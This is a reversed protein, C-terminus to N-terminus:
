QRCDVMSAISGDSRTCLRARARNSIRSNPIRIVEISLSSSFRFFMEGSSFRRQQLFRVQEPSLNAPPATM